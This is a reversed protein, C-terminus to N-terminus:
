RLGRHARGPRPARLRRLCGAAVPGPTRARRVRRDASSEPAYTVLFCAACLGAETGYLQYLFAEALCSDCRLEVVPFTM